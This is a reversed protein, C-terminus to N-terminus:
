RRYRGSSQMADSFAAAFIGAPMAIIGIGLIATIGAVIRGLVTIPYVDGYGLTTLTVVAWWMARPISGFAEPQTGGEIVHLLTASLMMLILIVAVATLLEFRRSHVATGISRIALSFRGLRALRLIRFLRFLRLMFAETGFGILLVPLLALLDIVAPVSFVYALRSRVHPNEVSVWVRAVYEVIFCAGAVMEVALFIPGFDDRLLPESELITALVSVLILFVIALNVRSLGGQRRASPELARYARRRMTLNTTTVM